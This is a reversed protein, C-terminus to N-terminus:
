TGRQEDTLTLRAYDDGQAVVKDQLDGGGREPRTVKNGRGYYGLHDHEDYWRLLTANRRRGQRRVVSRGHSAARGRGDAGVIGFGSTLAEGDAVREGGVSRWARPASETLSFTELGGDDVSGEHDNSDIMDDEGSSGQDKFGDDGSDIVKDM